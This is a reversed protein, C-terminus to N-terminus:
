KRRIYDVNKFKINNVEAIYFTKQDDQSEVNFGVEDYFKSVQQNKKTKVYKTQVVSYGLNIHDDIVHKLFAHEINRGIVRCSMLFTVIKFTSKDISETVILGTIGSDGFKDEVNICYTHSDKKQIFQNLESNTHRITTLNFQNTKQAMQEMRSLHEENDKYIAIKIDLSKIYDDISSFTSKEQSRKAQKKYEEAKKLDDETIEHRYFYNAVNNILSPYESLNKPVQFTVVEPLSEKILNVEFDSDDIFILSDLGINLEKAIDRINSAKNNWNVKKSTITSDKLLFDPHKTIVEDVDEENNKSCLCILIGRKSLQLILKQIYNFIEGNKSTASMEIGSYGDEGLIGKWLTNDCDLVLAKKIKGSISYIIHQAIEVYAAIWNTKYLDKFAYYSKYDLSNNAGLNFTIQDINLTRLNKHGTQKSILYSNLDNVLGAYNTKGQLDNFFNQASYLNFIVLKTEKLNLLILDIQSKIEKSIEELSNDSDHLVCSALESSINYLEQHIIVVDNNKENQSDQIINDYNGIKVHANIGNSRLPFELIDKMKNLTINSLLSITLPEGDVQNLLKKNEKIIELHTKAQLNM